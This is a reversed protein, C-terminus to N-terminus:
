MQYHEHSSDSSVHSGFMDTVITEKGFRVDTPVLLREDVNWKRSNVRPYLLDLTIGREEEEEEQEEEYEYKKLVKYSRRPRTVWSLKVEYM